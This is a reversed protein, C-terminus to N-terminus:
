MTDQTLLFLDPRVLKWYVRLLRTYLIGVTILRWRLDRREAFLIAIIRVLLHNMGSDFSGNLIQIGKKSVRALQLRL